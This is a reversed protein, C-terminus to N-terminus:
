SKWQATRQQALSLWIWGGLIAGALLRLWGDMSAGVAGLLLPPLVLLLNQKWQAFPREAPPRAVIGRARGTRTSWRVLAYYALGAAIGAIWVLPNGAGEDVATCILVGALGGSLGGAFPVWGPPAAAAPTM